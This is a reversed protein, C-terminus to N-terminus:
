RVAVFQCSIAYRRWCLIERRECLKKEEEERKTLRGCVTFGSYKTPRRVWNGYGPSEWREYAHFKRVTTSPQPNESKSQVKRMCEIKMRFGGSEFYVFIVHMRFIRSKCYNWKESSERQIKLIHFKVWWLSDSWFCTANAHHNLFTSNQRSLTRKEDIEFPLWGNTTRVRPPFGKKVEPSDGQEGTFVTCTKERCTHSISTSLWVMDYPPLSSPKVDPGPWRDLRFLSETWNHAESARDRKEEDEWRGCNNTQCPILWSYRWSRWPVM